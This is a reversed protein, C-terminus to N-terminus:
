AEQGGSGAGALVPTMVSSDAKSQACIGLQGPGGAALGPGNYGSGVSLRGGGGQSM